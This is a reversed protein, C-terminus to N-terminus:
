QAGLLEKPHKLSEKALHDQAVSQPTAPLGEESLVAAAADPPLDKFNISLSPPKKMGEPPPINAKHALMHLKVNMWGDREEPSGNKMARGQPSNLWWLCTQMEAAHLDVDADVRYSPLLQPTKTLQQQLQELQQMMEPPPTIQSQAAMQISRSLAQVEASLMMYAQNPVPAQKSLIEIEGMQKDAADAQPMDLEQIGAMKVATRLNMPTASLFSAMMPNSADQLLAQYRSQKEVWSEPFNANSEPTALLNGKLESMEIRLITDNDLGVIPKRRLKAALMVAQKFYNATAVNISHWPTGLRGLAQDRQIAIAIGSSADTNAQAGFLSPLAGSLLQPLQVMWNMIFDPMAPNNQPVPEVWIPPMGTTQMPFASLGSPDYPIFAGPVSSQEKISSQDALATSIWRQPICRIFYDNMLDVWNNLRKQVSLLKSCLAIRNMGSGPFAQVLTCHDDMSENRAFIFATGAIVVLCGDPFANMLEERVEADEVEMFMSPRFWTRQVTCDRVMSDGTVYSAELALAVNIRAIRDLENEGAGASGPKIKDAKDPFMGKVFAYDYEKSVQVFPCDCLAQANIPVKHELKGFVSAIEEGIPYGRKNSRAPMETLAPFVGGAKLSGDGADEIAAVGGPPIQSGVPIDDGMLTRYIETIVSDHSVVIVPAEPTSSHIADLLGEAVRKKFDDFSEGGPMAEAPNDEYHEITESAESSDTGALEGINLSAFRDDLEVSVGAAEAIARATEVAREVPSCIVKSPHKAKLWQASLEVQRQGNKDLPVNSRGRAKGEANLATEGHRVLYLLPDIKESEATEPVEPEIMEDRGFRQADLIHDVVILARGDNRLYYVLQHQLDLLDNARGFLAAYKTAARAATIDSDNNPDKPEFRVRPIDRTLAATIIEGYTTYINTEYGYWKQGTKKGGGRNYDTAFPPMIWGGGKRPLLYQYGRDYLRAEWAQEVEWRRAAVDKNGVLDCLRRLAKEAEDSLSAPPYPSAWFPALEGPDFQPVANPDKGQQEPYPSTTNPSSNKEAM